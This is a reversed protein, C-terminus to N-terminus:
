QHERIFVDLPSINTFSDLHSKSKVSAILVDEHYYVSIENANTRELPVIIKSKGGIIFYCGPNYKSIVNEQYKSSCFESGVM